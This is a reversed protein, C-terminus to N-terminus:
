TRVEADLKAFMRRTLMVSLDVTSLMRGTDVGEMMLATEVGARNWIARIDDRISPDVLAERDDTTWYCRDNTTHFVLDLPFGRPSVMDFPTECHVAEGSHSHHELVFTSHGNWLLKTYGPEDTMGDTLRVGAAYCLTDPNWMGMAALFTGWRADHANAFINAGIVIRDDDTYGFNHSHHFSM